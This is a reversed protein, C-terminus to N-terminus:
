YSQYLKRTYIVSNHVDVTSLLELNIYPHDEPQIYNIKKHMEEVEIDNIEDAIVRQLDLTRHDCINERRGYDRLFKCKYIREHLPNGQHNSYKEDIRSMVKNYCTLAVGHAINARALSLNVISLEVAKKLGDFYREVVEYNQTREEQIYMEHGMAELGLLSKNSPMEKFESHM